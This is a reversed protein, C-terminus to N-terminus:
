PIPDSPVEWQFGVGYWLHCQIWPRSGMADWIKRAVVYTIRRKRVVFKFRVSEKYKMLAVEDKDRLRSIKEELELMERYWCRAHFSIWGIYENELRHKAKLM